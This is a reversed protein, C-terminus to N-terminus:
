VQIDSSPRCIRGSLSQCSRFYRNTPGESDCLPPTGYIGGGFQMMGLEDCADMWEESSTRIININQQKLYSIYDRIFQPDQSVSDPVGRGPPNISNGRLFIPNGNLYFRGGRIEFSRFGFRVTKEAVVQGDMEATVSLKYLVPSEPSWLRPNLNDVTKSVMHCRKSQFGRFCNGVAGAM